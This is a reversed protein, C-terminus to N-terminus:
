ATLIPVIQSHWSWSGQTFLVNEKCTEILTKHTLSPGVQSIMYIENFM